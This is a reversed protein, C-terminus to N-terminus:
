GAVETSVGEESEFGEECPLVESRAHALRSVAICLNRLAPNPEEAEPDSGARRAAALAEDIGLGLLVLLTTAASGTRLWGAECHILVRGGQRLAALLPALAAALPAADSLGFSTRLPLRHHRACFTGDLVSRRYDGALEWERDSLLCLVDAVGAERIEDHVQDFPWRGGPRSSLFVRAGDPLGSAPPLDLPRLIMSPTIM